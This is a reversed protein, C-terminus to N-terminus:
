AHKGGASLRIISLLTQYLAAYEGRPLKRAARLADLLTKEEKTLPDGSTDDASLLEAVSVGLTLSLRPLMKMYSSSRGLRWNSVTKPPLGAEREFAADSAYARAILATLKEGTARSTNEKM